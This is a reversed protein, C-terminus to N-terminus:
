ECKIYKYALIVQELGKKESETLEFSHDGRHDTFVISASSSRSMRLLQEALLEGIQIDLTAFSKGNLTKDTLRYAENVYDLKEYGESSSFTISKTRKADAQCTVRLFLFSQKLAKNHKIYVTINGESESHALYTNRLILFNGENSSYLAEYADKKKDQAKQYESKEGNGLNSILLYLVGAIIAAIWFQKNNTKM